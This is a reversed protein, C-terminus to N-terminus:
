GIKGSWKVWYVRITMRFTQLVRTFSSTYGNSRRSFTRKRAVGFEGWIVVEPAFCVMPCAECNINASLHPSLNAKLRRNDDPFMEQLQSDAKRDRNVAATAFSVAKRPLCRPTQHSIVCHHTYFSQLSRRYLKSKPFDV